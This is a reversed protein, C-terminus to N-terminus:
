VSNIPKKKFFFAQINHRNTRALLKSKLHLLHLLEEEVGESITDMDPMTLNVPTKADSLCTLDLQTGTELLCITGANTQSLM